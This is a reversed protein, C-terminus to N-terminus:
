QICNLMPAPALCSIHAQRTATLCTERQNTTIVSEDPDPEGYVNKCAQRNLIDDDACNAFCQTREDLEPQGYLAAFQNQFYSQDLIHFDAYIAYINPGNGNIGDGGDCGFGSCMHGQSSATVAFMLAATGISLCKLIPASLTM